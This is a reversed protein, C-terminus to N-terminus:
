FKLVNFFATKKHTLCPGNLSVINRKPLVAGIVEKGVM